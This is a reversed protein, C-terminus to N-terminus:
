YKCFFKGMCYELFGMCFIMGINWKLFINFCLRNVSFDGKGDIVWFNGLNVGIM